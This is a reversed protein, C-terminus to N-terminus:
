NLSHSLTCLAINMTVLMAIGIDTIDRIEWLHPVFLHFSALYFCFLVFFFFEGETVNLYEKWIKDCEDKLSTKQFASIIGSKLFHKEMKYCMVEPLSKGKQRYLSLSNGILCFYEKM